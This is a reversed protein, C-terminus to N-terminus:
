RDTHGSEHTCKLEYTTLPDESMVHLFVGQEPTYFEPCYPTGNNDKLNEPLYIWHIRFYDLAQAWEQDLRTRFVM